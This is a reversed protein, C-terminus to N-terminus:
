KKAIHIKMPWMFTMFIKSTEYELHSQKFLCQYEKTSYFKVHEPEKRMVRKNIRSMIFGDATPGMIFIKGGPLLVRFVEKLVELPEPFHHFANTCIIKNFYNDEFPLKRASVKFFQLNEYNLSNIKAKEIMKSSFDIGYAKGGEKIINAAYRVAWGTGCGIDLFNQSETLNLKKILHKQFFRLYGYRKEDFDEARLNWKAENIKEIHVKENKDTPTM